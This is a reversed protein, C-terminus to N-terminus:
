GHNLEELTKDVTIEVKDVAGRSISRKGRKILWEGIIIL